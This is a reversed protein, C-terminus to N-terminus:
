AVKQEDNPSSGDDKKQSFIKYIEEMFNEIKSTDEESLNVYEFEIKEGKHFYLFNIFDQYSFASPEALINGNLDVIVSMKLENNELKEIKYKM